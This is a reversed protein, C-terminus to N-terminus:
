CGAGAAEEAGSEEAAGAAAPLLGSVLAPALEPAAVAGVSPDVAGEAGEAGLAGPEARGPLLGKAEACPMPVRGAPAGRGPLLGKAEAWPM